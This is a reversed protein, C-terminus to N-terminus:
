LAIGLEAIIDEVIRSAYNKRITLPKGEAYENVLSSPLILNVLNEGYTGIVRQRVPLLKAKRSEAEEKTVLGEPRRPRVPRNFSVGTEKAIQQAEQIIGRILKFHQHDKIRGIIGKTNQWERFESVPNIALEVLVDNPIVMAAPKNLELALSERFEFLYKLIFQEYYSLRDAGRLKLYRDAPDRIEIQELLRCEEGLWEERGLKTIRELLVDKLAHLYVVDNAAYILQDESLPRTTWNSVQYAKDIDTEFIASMMNAFSTRGYDLVKSALETDLISQPQCGLKKLLLIDNSASHIIKLIAPNDIIQWLPKLTKLPFPDILYCTEKDAIQILCLTLGYTYRNDDFELDLALETAHSLKQVAKKFDADTAIYKVQFGNLQGLAEAM